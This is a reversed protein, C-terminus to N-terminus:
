RLRHGVDSVGDGEVWSVVSLVLDDARCELRLGKCVELTAGPVPEVPVFGGTESLRDLVEALPELRPPLGGAAVPHLSAKLLDSFLRRFYLM